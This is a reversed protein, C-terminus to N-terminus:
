KLLNEEIIKQYQEESLAGTQSMPKGKMPIFLVMPISRIGFANSLQKEDDVNVKYVTIKGAYDKAIKDMIPAVRKCPGCWNAYFDIVAPTKGLYVFEKPSKEFNWVKKIFTNYTLSEPKNQAGASAWTLCIAVILILKKM